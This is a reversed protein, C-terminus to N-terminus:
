RQQWKMTLVAGTVIGTLTLMSGLSLTSIGSLGQGVTCGMATVGGFGMLVAGVLQNRLDELSAFGEWRFTRTSLAYALSGLVVGSVTAIGFTMRLSKDTWLMLMELSYAIPAVFSFSEITRTNTGFYTMELTEPSEAFGIHGTLYWGAVVLLGLTIAGFIQITNARFRKDKFIFALLGLSVFCLLALVVTKGPQGTLRALLEALSQSKMGLGSLDVAVPDLYNARWQGFLGKLTMYSSISIFTLVVLSRVSGGGLRLLNKNACGGAITMGIGFLTGGLLMSLWPLVPRQYVSKSLDVLDFYHLLNAGAVAVAIALLWTRMRGWHEMNVVDSIAGMTCFNTKSAVIGFVFALAFGGWVVWLALNTINEM